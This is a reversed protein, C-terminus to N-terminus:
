IEDPTAVDTMLHVDTSMAWDWCHLVFDARDNSITDFTKIVRSQSKLDSPDLGRMSALAVLMDTFEVRSMGVAKGFVAMPEGGIDSVIRYATEPRIRAVFALEATFEDRLHRTAHDILRATQHKTAFLPVRVLSLAAQLVEDKISAAIGAELVDDLARYLMRREVSYRTLIESRSEPSVWWFMMQALRIDMERRALLLPQLADETASRRVLIELSRTSIEADPNALLRCHVDMGAQEVLADVVPMQLYKRDSIALHHDPGAERIIQVLEETQLRLSGRLM